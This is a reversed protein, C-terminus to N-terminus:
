SVSSTTVSSVDAALQMAADIIDLAQKLQEDTICLPVLVRIINDYMGAKILVLGRQHAAALIENAAQTNPEKTARDKVLEMAVM